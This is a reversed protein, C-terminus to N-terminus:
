KKKTKEDIKKAVEEPTGEIKKSENEMKMNLEEAEKKFDVIYNEDYQEKYLEDIDSDILLAEVDNFRYAKFFGIFALQRTLDKDNEATTVYMVKNTVRDKIGYLKM